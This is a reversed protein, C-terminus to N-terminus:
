NVSKVENPQVLTIVCGSSSYCELTGRRVIRVPGRDPFTFKFDASRLWIAATKLEEAGSTLKVDEVRAALTQPDPVLSVFFDATADKASTQKLKLTKFEALDDRDEGSTYTEGNSDQASLAELKNGVQEAEDTEGAREEEYLYVALRYMRKAEQNRHQQEYVQALHGAMIGWQALRWAADLYREAQDFNGMRFYVWGLTDWYAALSNSHGLEEFRLSGLKVRASAGEEMEVAKQGYELALNMKRGADGLAYSINNYRVAQPDLEIAKQYAIIAKDTSGVKLYASGLRENLDPAYPRLKVASELATVADDYRELGTLATALNAPGDSDNPVAKIFEQLVPIAGEFEKAGLLQFALIKYVVSLRSDLAVAKRYAALAEDLELTFQQLQGLLLWARTFKPDIEVARNLAAIGGRIDQKQFASMAENFERSADANNSYPLNRMFEQFSAITPSGTSLAIYQEHDDSVAKSFKKYAEYGRVSVEQQKVVLRRETSLVGDKFASSAHYEAFDETLDLKAPIEPSYGKPLEVHSEFAIETPFGLWIPTSRKEEREEALPLGLPPIPPSIRRNTWDPYEKRTYQYSFRFAEEVKEPSEATVDSVEGAFGSAYSIQQVLDKWQPMPVTRFAARVLLERDDGQITREVKGELTGEDDLKAQMRFTQKAKADPQAPTTILAAPKERPIVLAPKDRLTSLLYGYRAVEPTTDLWTVHDGQAVVSIVHDFQGPSPVDPDLEHSSSILAPYAQIGVAELLSALLTHKDKCDGYQNGMVENASHPQYRGIGFAIGIYRFQGSVYNYIARAKASEDAANKTLEAAKARIEPTPKVREAQLNGYWKGVEEWSQFSSFEVQSPSYKGRVAQYANQEQDKREQEKSKHELNSNTWTFVRRGGEEMIAPKLGPSKWKVAREGPISVQLQEQLIIGDHSFNYSLWFQGPTLPKMVQWQAQYELVDGAGLGKVAVHKEQLDSYFPAQRTIEAAMDQVNEPPTTVIAGDPKRVRVYEIAISETEKQYSFTLVGFRQVGAGSQIRVRVSSQRNSTGDNEFVVRTSDQEVVFAEGSYDPKAGAPNAVTQASITRLGLWSTVWFVFLLPHKTMRNSPHLRYGSTSESECEINYIVNNELWCSSLSLVVAVQWDGDSRLRSLMSM